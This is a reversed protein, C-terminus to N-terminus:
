DKLLVRYILEHEQWETVTFGLSNKERIEAIVFLVECRQVKKKKRKEWPKDSKEIEM